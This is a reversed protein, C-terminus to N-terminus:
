DIQTYYTDLIIEYAGTEDVTYEAYRAGQSIEGPLTVMNVSSVGSNVLSTALFSFQDVGMNTVSYQSAVNFLNVLLSINGQAQGLAQRFFESVYQSQRAQRDLSSELVTTDRYQVYRYASDGFLVTTVGEQIYTNPISQLPTLEVGGIADNLEGIGSEDMAFYYTLPLNFLLRSVAAATNECSTQAGDGFSYALCAQMRQQGSYAGEETYIDVLVMSDRPVAIATTAGTETDIAIVMMADSQGAAEGEQAFTTRDFGIALISVMNENLAYTRGEYTVTKGEDYTVANEDTELEAQQMPDLFSQKGSEIMRNIGFATGVGIVVLAAVVIAAIKLRKKRKTHRRKRKRILVEESAGAMKDAFFESSSPKAAGSATRASQDPQQNDRPSNM